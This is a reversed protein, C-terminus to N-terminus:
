LLEDADAKASRSVGEFLDSKSLAIDADRPVSVVIRYGVTKQLIRLTRTATSPLTGIVVPSPDVALIEAELPLARDRLRMNFRQCMVEALALSERRHPWYETPGSHYERLRAVHQQFVTETLHGSRSLDSGLIVMHTGRRGRFFTRKSWELRNAIVNDYRGAVLEDYITYFNLSKPLRGFPLAAHLPTRFQSKGDHRQKAFYITWSGDDTVTANKGARNILARAPFYNIMPTIVRSSPDTTHVLRVVDRLRGTRSLSDVGFRHIDRIQAARLVTKYLSGDRAGPTPVIVVRLDHVRHSFADAAEIAFLLQSPNNVVAVPPSSRTSTM